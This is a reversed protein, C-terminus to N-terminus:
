DRIAHARWCLLTSVCRRLIYLRTKHQKVVEVCRRWLEAWSCGAGAAASPAGIRRNIGSSYKSSPSCCVVGGM